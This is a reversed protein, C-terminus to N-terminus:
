ELACSRAAGVDTNGPWSCDRHGDNKKKLNKATGPSSTCSRRPRRHACWFPRAKKRCCLNGTEKEKQSGGITNANLARFCPSPSLHIMRCRIRLKTCRVM